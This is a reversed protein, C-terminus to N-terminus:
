KSKYQDFLQNLLILSLQLKFIKQLFIQHIKIKNENIKLLFLDNIHQM